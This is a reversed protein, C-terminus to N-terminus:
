ITPMPLTHLLVQAYHVRQQRRWGNFGVEGAPAEFRKRMAAVDGGACFAKGKGTLVLARVDKKAQVHELASILQERLGDNIANRKEPRNLSITAIGSDIRLEILEADM